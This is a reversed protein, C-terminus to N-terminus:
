EAKFTWDDAARRKLRFTGALRLGKLRFRICEDTRELLECGGSEVRHVSGRGGGIDGEYDLYRLRHDDLCKCEMPAQPFGEFSFTLLVGEHELMLDFHLAGGRAHELVVFRPM